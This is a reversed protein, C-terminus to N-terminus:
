FAGPWVTAFDLIAVLRMAINEYTLLIALQTLLLRGNMLIVVIIACYVTSAFMLRTLLHPLKNLGLM